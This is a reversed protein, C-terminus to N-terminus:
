ILGEFDIGLLLAFIEVSINKSYNKHRLFFFKGPPFGENKDQNAFSCKITLIVVIYGKSM